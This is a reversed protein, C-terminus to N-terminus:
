CLKQYEEIYKAASEKWSFKSSVLEGKEVLEKRLNADLLLTSLGEKIKTVSNPDVLLAAGSSVEELAPITSSLVPVKCKMAEILPIGFSERLSCYVFAEAGGYLLPLSRQPIYGLAKLQPSLVEKEKQSLSPIKDLPLDLVVFQLHPQEKAIRAFAKFIRTTNKKPDTNGLFLVYPRHIDNDRLFSDISAQSEPKFFSAVGNYVMAVHNVKYDSKIRIVESESVTVLPFNKKFMRRVIIRRYMNGFRQYSSFGKAFLPHKELFITDHLTTIAPLPFWLSRTNSTFHFVDLDYAGLRRPLLWQEWLGYSAKFCVVELKKHIRLVDEKYEESNVFVVVSSIRSDDLLNNILNIAFVDMGHPKSRFIRQAEIGIRMVQQGINRRKNGEV